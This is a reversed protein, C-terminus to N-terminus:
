ILTQTSLSLQRKARESVYRLRKVSRVDKTVDIMKNNKLEKLCTECLMEDFAQGGLGMEGVVAVVQLTGEELNGVVVETSSAGMKFVMMNCGGSLKRMTIHAIAGAIPENVLRVVELGAVTAANM